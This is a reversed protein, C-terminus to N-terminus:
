GSPDECSECWCDRAGGVRRPQRLHELTHGNEGPLASWCPLTWDTDRGRVESDLKEAYTWEDVVQDQLEGM